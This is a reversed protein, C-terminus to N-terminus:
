DLYLRIHEYCIDEGRKRTTQWSKSNRTPLWEQTMDNMIQSIDENRSKTRIGIGDAMKETISSHAENDGHRLTHAGDDITEKEKVYGILM